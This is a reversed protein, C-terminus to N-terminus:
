PFYPIGYVIRDKRHYQVSIGLRGEWKSDKERPFMKRLEGYRDKLDECEKTVM